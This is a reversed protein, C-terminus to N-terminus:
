WGEPATNSIAFAIPDYDAEPEDKKRGRKTSLTSVPAQIEKETLLLNASALCDLGDDHPTGPYGLYEEMYFTKIMDEQRGEYNSHMCVSPLWVQGMEFKNMLKEIRAEKDGWKIPSFPTIAFRTNYKDMLMEMSSIDQQMSVQEYYIRIPQYQRIFTVLTLFKKELGIKDRVMDLVMINGLQDVGFALIVTFDHRRGTKGSAPDVTIYINLGDPKPNWRHVWEAKFASTSNFSPDCMMQTAFVAPGMLRYKQELVDASFYIPYGDNDVCPQIVSEQFIGEKIMRYYVDSREYFTGVFCFELHETQGTNFAMKTQDLLKEIAEPTEVNKQTETDDFIQRSFHAGTKSSGLVGAVEITKEKSEITRKVEIAASTWAWRIRRGNPLDAYGLAPNDWFIDPWLSRLLSNNEIWSKIVNLFKMAMEVKYSYICYTQNPDKIIEWLTSAETIITSKLFERSIVWLKNWKNYQVDLCIRYGYDSNVFYLNLVVICFFFLSSEAIQRIAYRRTQEIGREDMGAQKAMNVADEIMSNAQALFETRSIGEVPLLGRVNYERFSEFFSRSPKMFVKRESEM